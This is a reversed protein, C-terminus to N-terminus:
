QRFASSAFPFSLGGVAPCLFAIDTSIAGSLHAADYPPQSSSMKKTLKKAPRYFSSSRAAPRSPAARNAPRRLRGAFAPPTRLVGDVERRSRAPPSRDPRALDVPVSNGDARRARLACRRPNCPIEGAHVAAYIKASERSFKRPPNSPSRLCGTWRLHRVEDAMSRTGTHAQPAGPALDVPVEHRGASLAFSVSYKESVAKGGNGGAHTSHVCRTLCRRATLIGRSRPLRSELTEGASILQYANMIRYTRLYAYPTQNMISRFRKIFYNVEYGSRAAMDTVRIPQTYNERIMDLTECVMRDDVFPLEVNYSLLDLMALLM